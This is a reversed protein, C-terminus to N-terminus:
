LPKQLPRIKLMLNPFDKEYFGWGKFLQNNRKIKMSTSINCLMWFHGPTEVLCFPQTKSSGGSPHPSRLFRVSLLEGPVKGAQHLDLLLVKNRM